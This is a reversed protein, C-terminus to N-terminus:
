WEDDEGEFTTSNTIVDKSEVAVLEVEPSAYKKM